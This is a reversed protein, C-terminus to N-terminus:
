RGKVVGANGIITEEVLYKRIFGEDFRLGLGPEEAPVARGDQLAPPNDFLEHSWELTEHYYGNDLGCLLHASIEPFVHASIRLGFHDAVAASRIWGTVGGIRQLDFLVHDYANCEAFATVEAETYLLEGGAFPVASTNRLGRLDKIQNTPVPDEFWVPSLAAFERAARIAGARDFFGAADIMIDRGFAEKLQRAREVDRRLEPLGVRMKFAACGQGRVLEAERVLEGDSINLFGGSYYSPVSTRAAGLLRFLPLGCLRAKLDWMATDLAAVPYAQVGSRGHLVIKRWMGNWAKVTESARMGILSQALPGLMAQAARVVPLDFSRVYGIGCDGDETFIEVAVYGFGGIAGVATGIPKDIAHLLVRSRVAAITADRASQM